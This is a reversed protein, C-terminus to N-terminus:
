WQLQMTVLIKCSSGSKLIWRWVESGQDWRVLWATSDILVDFSLRLYLKKVDGWIASFTNKDLFLVSLLYLFSRKLHPPTVSVTLRPDWIMVGAEGSVPDNTAGPPIPKRCCLVTMGPLECRVSFMRWLSFMYHRPLNKLWAIFGFHFWIPANSCSPLQTLRCSLAFSLM